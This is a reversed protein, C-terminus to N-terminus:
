KKIETVFSDWEDVGCTLVVSPDALMHYQALKEGEKELFTRLVRADQDNGYRRWGGSAKFDAFEEASLVRTQMSGTSLVSFRGDDLPYVIGKQNGPGYYVKGQATM